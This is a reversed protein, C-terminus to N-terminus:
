PQTRRQQSDQRHEMDKESKPPMRFIPRKDVDSTHLVASSSFHKMLAEQGQFRAYSVVPVKAQPDSCVERWLHAGRRLTQHLALVDEPASFNVFAFGAHVRSQEKCPMYFFLYREGLGCRDMLTLFSQRATPATLHRVMVTTRTDQGNLINQPSIDYMSFDKSTVRTRVPGGGSQRTESGSPDQQPTQPSDDPGEPSSPTAGGATTPSSSSAQGGGLGPPPRMPLKLNPDSLSAVQTSRALTPSQPPTILDLPPYGSACPSPPVSAPAQTAALAALSAPPTPPVPLAAGPGVTAVLKHAARMDYFEVLVDGCVATASAVEGFVGFGGVAGLRESCAPSVRVVRYDTAHPQSPAARDGLEALLRRACRIDYFTVLVCGTVLGLTTDLRALEGYESWIGAATTVFPVEGDTICVTTSAAAGTDVALPAPALSRAKGAGVLDALSLSQSRLELM